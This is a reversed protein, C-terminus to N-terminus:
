NSEPYLKLLKQQRRQCAVLAGVSLPKFGRRRNADAIAFMMAQQEFLTQYAKLLPCRPDWMHIAESGAGNIEIILFGEGRRLLGITEFRLDFRGFWFEPIAAAISHFRATLAPTVWERGDIYLGGVRNSGVTALRVMEGAAPIRDVTAAHAALHLPAKWRTRENALILERLSSAGDGVVFPYYRLTLSFIRGIPEGPHRVYFVGAEGDATVHEQVIVRQCRPFAALYRAADQENDLRRVGIGRWGIDPKAVVPFALGASEMAHRFRRTSEPLGNTGSAVDFAASRAFWPRAAPEVMDLCASKSEGLLGGTEILPNALTPLTQSRYRCGLWLWQAVLPVYFACPPIKESIPVRIDDADLPPMGRHVEISRRFTSDASVTRQPAYHRLLWVAGVVITMAPWGWTQLRSVLASGFVLVALFLPPVYLTTSLLVAAAFRRFPVGAWGIAAFTPFLVTPTFRCGCVIWFLRRSLWLPTNVGLRTLLRSLRRSRRALRGLGYIACDGLVIGAFLSLAALVAPLHREAALYGGAFIAADEHVLSGLFLAAALFGWGRLLEWTV